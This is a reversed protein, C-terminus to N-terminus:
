CIDPLKNEISSISLSLFEIRKLYRKFVMHEYSYNYLRWMLILLMGLIHYFYRVLPNSSKSKIGAEDHIRFGTEINWRKRYDTLLQISARQNTAFCVIIDEQHRDKIIGKFIVIKTQPFWSTQDKTYKGLHTFVGRKGKIQNIYKKIAENKPVLILYPWPKKGQKNELFDILHWHYFGRDFLVLNIRLPLSRIYKLLGIVLDDLDDTQRYPLSMLPIFKPEVIAINIYQWSKKSTEYISARTNEAGYKGWYPDETTDIAIKVPGFRMIKLAFRVAKEFEKKLISEDAWAIKKHLTDSQSPNTTEVYSHTRGAEVISSVLKSFWGKGMRLLSLTKDVFLTILNM